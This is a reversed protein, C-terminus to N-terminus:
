LEIGNLRLHALFMEKTSPLQERDMWQDQKWAGGQKLARPCHVFCEEVEVVVGLGITKGSWEMKELLAADKTIRARGNVRLVEDMGPILFIMGVQPSQLINCLSDARRNGPREPFILRKEDLVKVFGPGDGRPSVDCRGDEDSTALFFLSSLSIYYAVHHDVISISKKMIHEQPEGTYQRLEELSTIYHETPEVTEKVPQMM